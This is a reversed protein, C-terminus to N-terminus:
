NKDSYYAFNPLHGFRIWTTLRPVEVQDNGRHLGFTDLAFVSGARGELFIGSDRAQPEVHSRPVFYTAGNKPGTATWYIFFTLQKYDDFDRHVTTVQHKSASPVTLMTNISYVRPQGGLYQRAMRLFVPHRLLAAVAPCGVSVDPTFSFYDGLAGNAALIDRVPFTQFSSNLPVQSDYARAAYFYDVVAQAQAPSIRVEDS